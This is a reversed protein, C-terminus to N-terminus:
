TWPLVGRFPSPGMTAFSPVLAAISARGIPVAAETTLNPMWIQQIGAGSLSSSFLRRNSAGVLGFVPRRLKVWGFEQMTPNWDPKVGLGSQAVSRIPLDSDHAARRIEVFTEHDIWSDSVVRNGPFFPDSVLESSVMSFNWAQPSLFRYLDTGAPFLTPYAIGWFRKRINQPATEFRLNSNLVELPSSM